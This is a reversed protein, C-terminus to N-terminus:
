TALPEVARHQSGRCLQLTRLNHFDNFSPSQIMQQRLVTKSQCPFSITQRPGRGPGHAAPPQTFPTHKSRPLSATRQALKCTNKWQQGFNNTSAHQNSRAKQSPEPQKKSSLLSGRGDQHDKCRRPSQPVTMQPDPANNPVRRCHNKRHSNTNKEHAPISMPAMCPSHQNKRHDTVSARMLHSQLCQVTM